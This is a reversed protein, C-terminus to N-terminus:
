NVFRIENSVGNLGLHPPMPDVAFVLSNGVVGKNDKFIIIVLIFLFALAIVVSVNVAGLTDKKYYVMFVVAFLIAVLYWCAKNWFIWVSTIFSNSKFKSVNTEEKKDQNVM